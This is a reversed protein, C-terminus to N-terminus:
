KILYKVKDKSNKSYKKRIENKMRKCQEDTDFLNSDSMNEHALKNYHAKIM